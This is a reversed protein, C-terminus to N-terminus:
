APQKQRFNVNCLAAVLLVATLVLLVAWIPQGRMGQNFAPAFSTGVFLTFAYLATALGRVNPESQTVVHFNLAPIILAIGAVFVISSALVWVPNLVVVASSLLLGLAACCLGLRIVRSAGLWRMMKPGTLPILFAPLAVMRMQLRSIGVQAMVDGLHTDLALYFAVFCFLMLLATVYLRWLDKHVLLSFMPKYSALLGSGASGGEGSPQAPRAEKIFAFRLATLVYIVALIGLAWSLGWPVVVQLGYIQGLLGASFFATGMWTVAWMRQHPNGLGAVHVLAAPPFVSAAWGQLVRLFIFAQWSPAAEHVAIMALTILTLVSLGGIIVARRGFRDSLAGFLLYGSAYSASFASLALGAQGAGLQYDQELFPLIPVPIYLLCVVAVACLVTQALLSISRPQETTSM